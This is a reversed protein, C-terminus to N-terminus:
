GRLPYTNTGQKGQTMGNCIMVAPRKANTLRATGILVTPQATGAFQAMGLLVTPRAAGLVDVHYLIYM